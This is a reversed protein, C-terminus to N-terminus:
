RHLLGTLIHKAHHLVEAQEDEDPAALFKRAHMHRYLDKMSEEMDEESFGDMANELEHFFSSGQVDTSKPVADTWDIKNLWVFSDDFDVSDQFAELLEGSVLKDKAEQSLSATGSLEINLIVGKGANYEESIAKEICYFVDNFHIMGEISVKKNEWIVDATEVKEMKSHDSSLEILLCGKAGTEKRHRGQINGPYIIYPDEWLIQQQHIHGLAWYDFEKELLEGTTFPSYPQHSSPSNECHGHLMGIHYDADGTKIFQSCTREMVHREGYSIGYIHIKMGSKTKMERMSVEDPGFVMVNEPLEVYTWSGGLHDHNGHIIFVPIDKEALREMQRKMRAQAKISRDEGDYLDGSILVFDVEQTVAEEVIREFSRFTSERLRNFLEEPLSSLGSFPSDLHLDACHIFKIEKM